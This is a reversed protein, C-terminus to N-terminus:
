MAYMARGELAQAQELGQEWNQEGQVKGTVLSSCERACQRGRQCHGDEEAVGGAQRSHPFLM